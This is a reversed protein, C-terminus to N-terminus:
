DGYYDEATDNPMHQECYGTDIIPSKSQNKYQEATRGCDECTWTQLPRGEVEDEEDEDDELIRILNLIDGYGMEDIEYALELIEEENGWAFNGDESDDMKTEPMSLNTMEVHIDEPEGGASLKKYIRLQQQREEQTSGFKEGFDAMNENRWIPHTDGLSHTIGILSTIFPPKRKKRLFPRLFKEVAARDSPYGSMISSIEDILFIKRQEPNDICYQLYDYFTDIFVADDRDEAFSKVNTLAVDYMSKALCVETLKGGTMTKGDGTDGFLLLSLSNNELYNSLKEYEVIDMQHESKQLGIAYQIIGHNGMQVANSLVRNIEPEAVEVYSKSNYYYYAEKDENEYHVGQNPEYGKKYRELWKRTDDDQILGANKLVNIKENAIDESLIAFSPMNGGMGQTPNNTNMM